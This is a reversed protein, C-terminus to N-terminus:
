LCPIGSFFITAPHFNHTTNFAGTPLTVTTTVDTSVSRVIGYYLAGYTAASTYPGPDESCPLVVSNASDWRLAYVSGPNLSNSLSISVLATCFGHMVFERFRQTSGGGTKLPFHPVANNIRQVQSNNLHWDWDTCDGSLPPIFHYTGVTYNTWSAFDSDASLWPPVIAPWGEPPMEYSLDPSIGIETRCKGVRAFLSASAISSDTGYVAAAGIAHNWQLSGPSASYDSAATVPFANSDNVPASGEEESVDLVAEDVIRHLKAPTM